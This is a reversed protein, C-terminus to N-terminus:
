KGMLWSDHPPGRIKQLTRKALYRRVVFVLLAGCALLVVIGANVIPNMM